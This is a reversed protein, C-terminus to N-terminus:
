RMLLLFTILRGSVFAGQTDSIIQPLITKLRDCLIKSIIKSHVSCLSIPRMDKMLTPNNIKPILCIQTHNWGSPLSATRFFGQIEELVSENDIHWFRKYFFGSLGDEGPASNGKISFAARKIEDNTIPATMMENMSQTVRPTFGEFLSILDFPNSSMFLDRFYEVAINGKAGESFHECGSEDLLMLIKNKIKRGKVCNHFYKTNKDGAKLWQERSKQRWFLEEEKYAHALDKKLNRM